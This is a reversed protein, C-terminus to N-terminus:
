QKPAAFVLLRQLDTGVPTCTQLILQNKSLGTKLYKTENPWVVKKSYVYYKYTKGNKVLRIEDGENLESLKYFAVNYQTINWPFDSSHAFLYITGKEGIHKTGKAQAVGKYLKEKYEKENWPNVDNVIPSQARIKPIVIYEGKQPIPKLPPAALFIFILPYYIYLLTLIAVLMFLNGINRLILRNQEPSPVFKMIPTNHLFYTDFDLLALRLVIKNRSRNWFSIASVM